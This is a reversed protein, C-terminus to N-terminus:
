RKLLGTSCARELLIANMMKVSMGIDDCGFLALAAMVATSKGTESERVAVPILCCGYTNIITHYHFAQIGGAVMCLTLILNHKAM